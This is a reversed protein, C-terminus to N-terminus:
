SNALSFRNLSSIRNSGNDRHYLHVFSTHPHPAPFPHVGELCCDYQWLFPADCSRARMRIISKHASARQRHRAAHFSKCFTQAKAVNGPQGAPIGPTRVKGSASPM